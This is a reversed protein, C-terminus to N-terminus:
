DRKGVKGGYFYIISKNGKVRTSRFLQALKFHTQFFIFYFSFQLKVTSKNVFLPFNHLVNSHPQFTFSEFPNRFSKVDFFRDCFKDFFRKIVFVLYAETRVSDDIHHDFYSWLNSFNTTFKRLISMFIISVFFIFLSFEYVKEWGWQAHMFFTHFANERRWFM